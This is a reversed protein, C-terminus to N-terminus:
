PEARKTGTVMSWVLNERHMFSSLLVGIVHLLILTLTLNTLIEHLEEWLEHADGDHRRKEHNREREKDDASAYVAAVVGPLPVSVSALPGKGEEVAYLELGTWVIGLLSVLLLIVMAGGAPSHGIYRESRGSVLGVLYRWVTAPPYIFDSFRAYKPGMLGWVIRMLVLVGVTYGAWVHLTLIDDEAFYAAFFAIVVTWHFVRVFLDWVRVRAANETM